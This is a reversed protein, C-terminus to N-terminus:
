SVAEEARDLEGLLDGKLDNLGAFFDRANVNCPLNQALEDLLGRMAAVYTEHVASLRFRILEIDQANAGSVPIRPPGFATLIGIVRKTAEEATSQSPRLPVVTSGAAPGPTTNANTAEIGM